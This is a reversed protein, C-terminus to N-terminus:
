LPATVLVLYLASMTTWRSVLSLSLQFTSFISYVSLLLLGIEKLLLFTSARTLVNLLAARLQAPAQRLRPPPPWTAGEELVVPHVRYIRRSRQGRNNLRRLVEQDAKFPGLNDSRHESAWALIM